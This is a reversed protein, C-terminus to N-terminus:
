RRDSGRERERRGDRCDTFHRMLYCSCPVCWFLSRFRIPFCLLFKVRIVNQNSCEKEGTRAASLSLCRKSRPGFLFVFSRLSVFRFPLRGSSANARVCLRASARVVRVLSIGIAPSIRDSQQNHLCFRLVCCVSVGLCICQCASAVSDTVSLHAM